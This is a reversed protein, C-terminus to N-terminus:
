EGFYGLGGWGCVAVVCWSLFGGGVAFVAVFRHVLPCAVFVVYGVSVDHVVCLAVAVLAFAGVFVVSM